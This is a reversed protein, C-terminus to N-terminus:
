KKDKQIQHNVINLYTKSTSGLNNLMQIKLADKITINQKKGSAKLAYYKSCYKAM